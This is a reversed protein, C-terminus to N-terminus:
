RKKKKPKAVREFLKALPLKFGPLVDGGQLAENSKISTFETRSTYIFASETKPYISWVQRVGAAFYDRLKREM